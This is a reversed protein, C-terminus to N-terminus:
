VHFIRADESSSIRAEQRGMKALPGEKLELNGYHHAMSVVSADGMNRKELEYVFDKFQVKNPKRGFLWVSIGCAAILVPACIVVFVWWASSDDEGL